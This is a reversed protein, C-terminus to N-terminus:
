NRFSEYTNYLDKQFKSKLKEPGSINPFSKIFDALKKVTITNNTSVRKFYFTRKEASFIEKLILGVADKVYILNIKRGPDNIKLEEKNAVQHCFTAVVSNYFPRCGEGFVNTLRFISVSRGFKASFDRFMIEALRKSLGYVTESESQASSLFILKTKKKLERLASALNYAAVVSGAIIESDGGRNVAAAHVILDKGSVFRKVSDYNLIDRKPLDFCSIKLNKRGKLAAVLHKGIFGSSGTIGIEM